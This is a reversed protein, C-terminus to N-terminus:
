LDVLKTKQEAVIKLVAEQVGKLAESEFLRRPALMPKKLDLIEKVTFNLTGDESLSYHITMEVKKTNAAYGTGSINTSHSAFLLRVDNKVLYINSRVKIKGHATDQEREQFDVLTGALGDFEIGHTEALIEGKGKLNNMLYNHIEAFNLYPANVTCTQQVGISYVKDGRDVVADAVPAKCNQNEISNRAFLNTSLLILGSLVLKKM